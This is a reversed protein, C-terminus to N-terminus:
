PGRARVVTAYLIVATALGLLHNGAVVFHINTWIANLVVLFLPYGAPRLPNGFLEGHSVDIYSKADPWGMFAPSWAAMFFGRVIAGAILVAVLGGVAIRRERSAPVARRVARMSARFLTGM